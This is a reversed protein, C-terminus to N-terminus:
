SREINVMKIVLITIIVYFHKTKNKLIVPCALRIVSMKMFCGGGGSGGGGWGDDECM